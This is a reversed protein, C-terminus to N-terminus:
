NLQSAVAELLEQLGFPKELTDDAGLQKAIYLYNKEVQDELSRL